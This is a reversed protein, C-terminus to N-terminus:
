FPIHQANAIHHITMLIPQGSRPKSCKGKLYMFELNESLGNLYITHKDGQSVLNQRIQLSRYNKVIM